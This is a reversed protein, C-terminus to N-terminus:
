DCDVGEILVQLGCDDALNLPAELIKGGIKELEPTLALKLSQAETQSGCFSAMVGGGGAGFVRTLLAGQKDAFGALLRTNDSHMAPWIELRKGWDESSANVVDRYTGGDCARAVKRAIRALETFASVAEADRNYFAKFMEWNNIASQRSQGSFYVVTNEQLDQLWKEARFNHVQWGGPQYDIVNLGGYLAGLYDQIGTPTHILASEIDRARAALTDKSAPSLDLAPQGKTRRQYIELATLVAALLASSGGLGAGAPSLASTTIEIGGRELLSQDLSKQVALALLPLENALPDSGATFEARVSQDRSVLRISKSDTTRLWVEAWLEIGINVKQPRPLDALHGLHWGCSRAACASKRPYM